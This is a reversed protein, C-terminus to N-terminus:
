VSIASILSSVKNECNNYEQKATSQYSIIGQISKCLEKMANIDDQFAKNFATNASGSWMKNMDAVDRQMDAIKNEVQKLYKQISETDSQLTKTSIRIKEAM